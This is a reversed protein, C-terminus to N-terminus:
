ERIYQFEEKRYFRIDYYTFGTLAIKKTMNQFMYKGMCIVSGDILKRFMYITNFKSFHIIIPMQSAYFQHGGPYGPYLKVGRGIYHVIKGRLLIQNMSRPHDIIKLYLEDDPINYFLRAEDFSQFIQSNNM